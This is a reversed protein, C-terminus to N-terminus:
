LYALLMSIASRAENTFFGKKRSFREIQGLSMWCLATSFSCTQSRNMLMISYRSVCRYFRGGEDSHLCDLLLIADHLVADLAQDDEENGHISESFKGADQLTPGFQFCQELGIEGRCRFLFHLVGNIERALLIVVGERGTIILPQDWCDVERQTTKVLYHRVQFNGRSDSLMLAPQEAPQGASSFLEVIHPSFNRTARLHLLRAEIEADSLALQQGTAEYSRLLSQGLQSINQLRSFPKRDFSLLAWPSCVLVSRADTNVQFDDDLLALLEEVPFWRYADSEQVKADRALEAIVNRNYKYLFRAGQESQMTDAHMAANSRSLFYEVFPSEKGRHVRTYNSKTAQVTPAAQVLGINGPEPKAQVLIHQRGKQKQTLFGLIGIEPQDIIPQSIHTSDPCDLSLGTISFFAGSQHRFRGEAVIWERSQQWAIERVEMDCNRRHMDLWQDLTTNM